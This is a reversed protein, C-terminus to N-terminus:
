HFVAPMASELPLHLDLKECTLEVLIDLEIILAQLQSAWEELFEVEKEM